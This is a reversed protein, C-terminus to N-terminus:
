NAGKPVYCVAWRHLSTKYPVRRLKPNWRLVNGAHSQSLGASRAFEEVTVSNPPRAGEGRMESVLLDWVNVPGTPPPNSKRERRASAM